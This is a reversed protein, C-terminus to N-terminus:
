FNELTTMPQGTSARDKSSKIVGITARLLERQAKEEKTISPDTDIDEDKEHFYDIM